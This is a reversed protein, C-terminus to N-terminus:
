GGVQAELGFRRFLEVAMALSAASPPNVQELRPTRGLRRAKATGTRHFPLINVQCVGPLAAAFRATQELAPQSDNVGPVLPVRLWIARHVRALSQLNELIVRNSLGTYKRHLEPDMMKLDYLFLDTLPAIGLLDAPRAMGCTDVATHLGAARCAALAPGLFAPQMLPEGGSFTVGGGSEDYFVQDRQVAELVEEVSM